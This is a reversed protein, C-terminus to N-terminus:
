ESKQIGGGHVRKIHNKHLESDTQFVMGERKLLQVAKPRHVDHMFVMAFGYEVLERRVDVEFVADM